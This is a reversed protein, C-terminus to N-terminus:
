VSPKTAIGSAVSLPGLTDQSLTTADDPVARKAHIPLLYSRREAVFPKQLPSKFYLTYACLAFLIGILSGVLVDQWHHRNDAIRSFAVLSAGLLPSYVLLMRLSRGATRTSIVHDYWFLSLYAMGAFSVLHQTLTLIFLISALPSGAAHGSPFSKSGDSLLKSDAPTRCVLPVSTLDLPKCRAIYDPRPRGTSLKACNVTIYTFSVALVLGLFCLHLVRLSTERSFLIFHRNSVSATAESSQEGQRKALSFFLSMFAAPIVVSIFPLTWSPVTNSANYPYNISPDFSIPRQIPSVCELATAIMLLIAILLWDLLFWGQVARLARRADELRM